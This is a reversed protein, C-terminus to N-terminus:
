HFRRNVFAYLYNSKDFFAHGAFFFAYVIHDLPARVVVYGDDLKFLDLFNKPDHYIVYVMTGIM